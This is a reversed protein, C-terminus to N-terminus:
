RYWRQIVQMLHLMRFGADVPQVQRDFFRHLRCWRLHAGYDLCQLGQPSDSLYRRYRDHRFQSFYRSERPRPLQNSLTCVAEENALLGGLQVFCGNALRKNIIL